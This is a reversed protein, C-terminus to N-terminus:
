RRFRLYKEKSLLSILGFSLFSASMFSFIIFSSTFGRSIGYNEDYYILKKLGVSNKMVDGSDDVVEVTKNKYIFKFVPYYVYTFRKDDVRKTAVITAETKVGFIMPLASGIMGYALFGGLLILIIGFTRIIAM